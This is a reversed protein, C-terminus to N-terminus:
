QPKRGVAVIREDVASAVGGNILTTAKGSGNFRPPSIAPVLTCTAVAALILTASILATTLARVPLFRM